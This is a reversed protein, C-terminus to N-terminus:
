RNSQKNRHMYFTGYWLHIHLWRGSSSGDPEFCTSSMLFKLFNFKLTPFTCKIPKYQIIINCQVTCSIHFVSKFKSMKETNTHFRARM